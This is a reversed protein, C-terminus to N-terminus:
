HHRAHVEVLALPRRARVRRPQHPLHRLELWEGDLLFQVVNLVDQSFLRAYAAALSMLLPGAQVFPETPMDLVVDLCREEGLFFGQM